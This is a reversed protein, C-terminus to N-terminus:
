RLYHACKTTNHIAKVQHCIYAVSLVLYGNNLCPYHSCDILNKLFLMFHKPIEINKRVRNEATIQLLFGSRESFKSSTVGHWTDFDEKVRKFTDNM